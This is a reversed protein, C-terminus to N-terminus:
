TVIVRFSALTISSPDISNIRTIVQYVGLEPFLYELSFNGNPAILNSFKFIKEHGSSNSIIVVMAVLHELHSGTRLNDASFELQTPTNIVPNEPSYTFLIKMNNERDTWVQTKNGSSQAFASREFTVNNTTVILVLLFMFFFAAEIAGLNSNKM